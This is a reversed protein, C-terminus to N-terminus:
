NRLFLHSMVNQKSKKTSSAKSRVYFYHLSSRVVNVIIKHLNHSRNKDFKTTKLALYAMMTSM